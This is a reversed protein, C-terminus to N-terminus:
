KGEFVVAFGGLVMRKMDFPCDGLEEMRPDSMMKKQAADRVEKSPYELWGYVVAEDDKAQVARRFDTLEGNPVDDEWAEVQRIVGFEKFLPWAKAAFARYTEKEKKPVALVFGEVYSM